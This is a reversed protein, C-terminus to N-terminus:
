SWKIELWESLLNEEIASRANSGSLKDTIVCPTNDAISMLVSVAMDLNLAKRIKIMTKSKNEPCKKL